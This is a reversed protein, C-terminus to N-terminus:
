MRDPATIGLVALGRALSDRYARVLGLRLAEREDGIIRSAEYFHNFDRALEYLYTTILHPAMERSAREVVETLESM